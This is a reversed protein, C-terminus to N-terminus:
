KVPEGEVIPAVAIPLATLTRLWFNIGCAIIAAAYYGKPGLLGQLQPLNAEALTAMALFFNFWLTRSKYWPKM